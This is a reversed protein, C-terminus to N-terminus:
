ELNKKSLARDMGAFTVLRAGLDFHLLVGLALALALDLPMVAVVLLDTHSTDKYCKKTVAGLVFRAPSYDVTVGRVHM